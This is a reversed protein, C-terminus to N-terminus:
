CKTVFITLRTHLHASRLLTPVEADPPNDDQSVLWPYVLISGTSWLISGTSWVTTEAAAPHMDQIHRQLCSHPDAKTHSSHIAYPSVM